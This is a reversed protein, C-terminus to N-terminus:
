RRPARPSSRAASPETRASGRPPRPHPTRPRTACLATPARRSAGRLPRSVGCAARRKTSKAGSRACSSEGCPGCRWRRGCEPGRYLASWGSTKDAPRRAKRARRARWRMRRGRRHAGARAVREWSLRQAGGRARPRARPRACHRARLACPRRQRQRLAARPRAPRGEFSSAFLRSTSRPRKSPRLRAGRDPRARRAPAAAPVPPLGSSARGKVSPTAARDLSTHAPSGAPAPGPTPRRPTLAATLRKLRAAVFGIRGAAAARQEPALVRPLQQRCQEICM